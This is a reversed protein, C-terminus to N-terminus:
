VGDVGVIIYMFTRVCGFYDLYIGCLMYMDMIFYLM